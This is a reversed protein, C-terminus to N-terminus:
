NIKTKIILIKIMKYAQIHCNSKVSILKLILIKANSISNNKNLNIIPKSIRSRTKKQLKNLNKKIQVKVNQSAVLFHIKLTKIAEKHTKNELFFIIEKFKKKIGPIM